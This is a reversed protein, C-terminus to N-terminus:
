VTVRCLNRINVKSFLKLLQRSDIVRWEEESRTKPCTYAKFKCILSQRGTQRESRFKSTSKKGSAQKLSGEGRGDISIASM